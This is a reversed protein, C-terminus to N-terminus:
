FLKQLILKVVLKLVKGLFKQLWPFQLTVVINILLAKENMVQQIFHYANFTDCSTEMFYATM